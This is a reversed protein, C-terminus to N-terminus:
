LDVLRTIIPAKGPEARHHVKFVKSKNGAQAKYVGPSLSINRDALDVHHGKVEITHSKGRRNVPAVTVPTNATHLRFVPATGYITVDPNSTTGGSRFALAGSTGAQQGSLKAQGGNCEVEERLLQGKSVKSRDRGVTVTGGTIVERQCSQMYGLTINEEDGLKIVQGEHVYDMFSLGTNSAQIDEVIAVPNAAQVLGASLMALAIIFTRVINM